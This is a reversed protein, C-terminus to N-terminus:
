LVSNLRMGVHVGNRVAFWAPTEIVLSLPYGRFLIAPSRPQINSRVERVIGASDVAIIDIPTLMDDFAYVAHSEGWHEFLMPKDIRARFSLGQAREAGNTTLDAEFSVKRHEGLYRPDQLTVLVIRM